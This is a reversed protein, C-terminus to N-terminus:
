NLSNSSKPPTGGSRNNRIKFDFANPPISKGDEGTPDASLILEIGTSAGPQNPMYKGESQPYSQTRIEANAIGAGILTIIVLGTNKM